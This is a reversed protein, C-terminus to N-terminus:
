GDFFVIFAEIGGVALVLWMGATKKNGTGAFM